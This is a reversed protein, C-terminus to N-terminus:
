TPDQRWFAAYRGAVFAATLELLVLLRLSPPAALATVWSGVLLLTSWAPLALDAAASPSPRLLASGAGCAVSGLLLLIEALTIGRPVHLWAGLLCAVALLTALVATVLAAEGAAAPPLSSGTEDPGPTLPSGAGTAVPALPSAAETLAPAQSLAAGGLTPVVVHGDRWGHPDPVQPPEGGGPAPREPEFAPGRGAINEGGTGSGHGTGPGHERGPRGEERRGAFACLWIGAIAAFLVPGSGDSLAFATLVLLSGARGPGPLAAGPRSRRLITWVATAAVAVLLPLFSWDLLAPRWAVPAPAWLRDTLWGGPEGHYRFVSALGFLGAQAPWAALGLMQREM